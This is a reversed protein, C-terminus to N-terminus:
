RAVLDSNAFKVESQSTGATANVNNSNIFGLASAPIGNYKWSITCKVDAGIFTAAAPTCVVNTIEANVLGQQNLLARVVNCEIATSTTRYGPAAKGVTFGSCANARSQGYAKEIPTAKAANGNGGMIAVTRAADRAIGQVQGRNSMYISYDISTVIFMIVVPFVIVASVLSDGSDSSFRKFFKRFM